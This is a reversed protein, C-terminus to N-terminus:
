TYSASVAKPFVLKITIVPTDLHKPCIHLSLCIFKSLHVHVSNYLCVVYKTDMASVGDKYQQVSNCPKINQPISNWLKSGSNAFSNRFIKCKPKPVYFLNEYCVKFNRNHM